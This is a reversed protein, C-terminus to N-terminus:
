AKPCRLLAAAPLLLMSLKSHAPLHSLHRDLKFFLIDLLQDLQEFFNILLDFQSLVHHPHQKRSRVFFFSTEVERISVLRM